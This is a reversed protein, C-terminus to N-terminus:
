PQQNFLVFQPLYTCKLGYKYTVLPPQAAAELPPYYLSTALPLLLFCCSPVLIPFPGFIHWLYFTLSPTTMTRVYYHLGM